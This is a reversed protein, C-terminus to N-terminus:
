VHARGIKGETPTAGEQEVSTEVTTTEINTNEM